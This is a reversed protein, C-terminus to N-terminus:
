PASGAGVMYCQANDDWFLDISVVRGEPALHLSQSCSARQMHLLLSQKCIYRLVFCTANDLDKELHHSPLAISQKKLANWLDAM